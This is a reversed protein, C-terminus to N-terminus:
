EIKNQSKMDVKLLRMCTHATKLDLLAAQKEMQVQTCSIQQYQLLIIQRATVEEICGLSKGTQRWM